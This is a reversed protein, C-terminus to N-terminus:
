PFHKCSTKTQMRLFLDNSLTGAGRKFMEAMFAELSRYLQPVTRQLYGRDTSTSVASAAPLYLNKPGVSIQCVLQLAEYKVFGIRALAGGTVVEGLM